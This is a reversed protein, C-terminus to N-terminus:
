RLFLNTIKDNMLENIQSLKLVKLSGHRGVPAAFLLAQRTADLVM